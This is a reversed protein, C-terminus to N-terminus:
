KARMVSVITANKCEDFWEGGLEGCAEVSEKVSCKVQAVEFFLRSVEAAESDGAAALDGLCSRLEDVCDCSMLRHPHVNLYSFRSPLALSHSYVIENPACNGCIM